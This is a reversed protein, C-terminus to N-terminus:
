HEDIIFYQNNFSSVFLCILNEILKLSVINSDTWELTHRLNLARFMIVPLHVLYISFSLRSIPIFISHSLFSSMLKARGTACAFVIWALLSTWITRHIAVYLASVLPSPNIMAPDNYAGNWLYTLLLTTFSLPPLLLWLLWTLHRPLNIQNRKHLLYGTFIGLCYPGMHQYTAFYSYSLQQKISSNFCFKHGTLSISHPLFM